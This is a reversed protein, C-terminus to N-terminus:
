MQMRSVLDGIDPHAGGLAAAARRPRGARGPAAAPVAVGCRRSRTRTLLVGATTM